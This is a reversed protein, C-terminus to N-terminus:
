PNVLQLIDGSDSSSVPLTTDSAIAQETPLAAQTQASETSTEDAGPFVLEESLDTPVFTKQQLTSISKTDFNPSIPEIQKAVNTEITTSTFSNYISVFIWVAIVITTLIAINVINKLM